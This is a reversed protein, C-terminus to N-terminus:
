QFLKPGSFSGNPTNSRQSTSPPAGERSIIDALRRPMFEVLNRLSKGSYIKFKTPDRYVGTLFFNKFKPCHFKTLIHMLYMSVCLFISCAATVNLSLSIPNKLNKRLLFKRDDLLSDKKKRALFSALWVIKTEPCCFKLLVLWLALWVFLFFRM